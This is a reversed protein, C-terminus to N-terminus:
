KSGLSDDSYKESNKLYKFDFASCPECFPRSNSLYRITNMSIPNLNGVQLENINEFMITFSTKMFSKFSFFPEEFIHFNTFSAESSCSSLSSSKM